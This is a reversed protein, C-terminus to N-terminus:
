SCESMEVEEEPQSEPQRVQMHPVLQCFCGLLSECVVSASGPDEHAPGGEHALAGEHAPGSLLLRLLNQRFVAHAAHGQPECYLYRLFPTLMTVYAPDERGHSM